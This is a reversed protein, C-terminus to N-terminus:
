GILDSASTLPRTSDIHGSRELGTERLLVAARRLDVRETERLGAHWEAIRELRVPLADDAM